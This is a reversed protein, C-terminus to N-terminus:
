NRSHKNCWKRSAQITEGRNTYLSSYGYYNYEQVYEAAAHKTVHTSSEMVWFTHSRACCEVIIDAYSIAIALVTFVTTAQGHECTKSM